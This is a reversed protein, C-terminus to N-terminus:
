PLTRDPFHGTPSTDPRPHTRDPFHVDLIHRDPIHVVESFGPGDQMPALGASASYLFPSLPGPGIFFRGPVISSAEPVM